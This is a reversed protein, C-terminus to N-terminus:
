SQCIQMLYQKFVERADRGTISLFAAKAKATVAVESESGTRLPEGLLSSQQQQMQNRGFTSEDAMHAAPSTGEALM